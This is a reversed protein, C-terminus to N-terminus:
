ACDSKSYRWPHLSWECGRQPVWTGDDTLLLIKKEGSINLHFRRHQPKYRKGRMHENPVVSFDPESKKVREWWTNTCM